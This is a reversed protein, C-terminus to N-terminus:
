KNEILRKIQEKEDVYHGQTKHSDMQVHQLLGNTIGIKKNNITSYYTVSREHAHGSTKTEKIDNAIPQFWKMYDNFIDVRFTTNSTSSWVSQPNNNVLNSYFGLLNDVRYHKKISELIHENWDKNIIFHYNNMSTPIYGIIQKSDEFFKIQHQAFNKDLIIDYEFLNVFKTKILNNKWLLYWGTYSTFKPYQEMNDEYNRAIIVNSLHEIKDIPRDGLFVYQYSYLNNFKKSEEFLLVLEQDHIFIFSDCDDKSNIDIPLKKSYREAFQKRNEEWMENTEGISLHTVRVDFMVGVKVDDLFNPLCFGLDYFHFGEISEDFKHKIISKDVAIFLGDVIVTEEVRSGIDNSYRSTWSKENNKHNVIGYMSSSISWWQASEHLYKTGALGLIGYETQRKFHKLVKDGWNKTEFELDDHVLVVIDNTSENIIENYVQSLSKEGNNIKQIIQVDKYMSTKQLYDVYKPNDERTSFGITIM